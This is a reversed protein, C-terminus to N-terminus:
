ISKIDYFHNYFMVNNYYKNSMLVGNIIYHLSLSEYSFLHKVKNDQYLDITERQELLLEM